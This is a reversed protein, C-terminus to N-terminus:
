RHPATHRGSTMIFARGARRKVHAIQKEETSGRGPSRLRRAGTFRIAFSAPVSGARAASVAFLIRQLHLRRRTDARGARNKRRRRKGPGETPVAEAAKGTRRKERGPKGGSFCNISFINGMGGARPSGSFFCASFALFFAGRPKELVPLPSFPFRMLVEGGVARPEEEAKEVQGGGRGRRASEGPVACEEGRGRLCISAKHPLIPYFSGTVCMACM